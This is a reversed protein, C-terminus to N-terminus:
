RNSSDILAIMDTNSPRIKYDLSVQKAKVRGDLGLVLTTPYPVGNAFSVNAYQPDRLGLADIMKSGEDSVLTYGLGKSAAFAALAEPKDYSLTVLSLGRKAVDARADNLGIMQAKCYPCWSASRVLMLVMGKQGMQAALTTAKGDASRLTLKVPAKAGIAIGPSKIPQAAFTASSSIPLAATVLLLAATLALRVTM